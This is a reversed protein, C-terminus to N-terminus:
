NPWSVGTPLGRARLSVISGRGVVLHDLVAIGLLKGAQILQATLQADEPSPEPDGSPHNHALIVSPANAIVAERFVEAPRVVASSVNGQYVLHQGLVRNKVNLLLVRFQEQALAEMEARLLSGADEPTRVAQCSAPAPAGPAKAVEYLCSLENLLALNQRLAALLTREHKNPM